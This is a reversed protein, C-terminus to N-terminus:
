NLCNDLIEEFILIEDFIVIDATTKLKIKDRIEEGEYCATIIIVDVKPFDNNPLLIPIDAKIEKANRDIAYLVQVNERKLESELLKGMDGYGYLAVTKYGNRQLWQKISVHKEKFKNWKCMVNFLYKYRRYLSWAKEADLEINEIEKKEEKVIPITDLNGCDSVVDLFLKTVLERNNNKEIYKKANEGKKKLIDKGDTIANKVKEYLEKETNWRYIFEESEPIDKVMCIEPAIVAKGCSMAKILVGSNLSSKDSHSMIVVDSVSILSDLEIENLFRYDIIIKNDEGILHKIKVGYEETDPMGAIILKVNNNFIKKFINIALELNKYPRIRGFICMVVENNRIEYKKRMINAVHVNYKNEYLIHPIYTVKRNIEEDQLPVYAKSTKSLIIIYDSHEALWMMNQRSFDNLEESHSMKNHLFWIIKAGNDKYALIQKKMRNNLFNEIWNLVVAQTKQMSITNEPSCMSDKVEYKSSLIKVMNVTFNNTNNGRHPYPLYVVYSRRM